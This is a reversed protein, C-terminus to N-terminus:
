GDDPDEMNGLRQAITLVRTEGSGSVYLVEYEEDHFIVQDEGEYDVTRVQLMHENRLGVDVPQTTNQARVDSSRLSAMQVLSMTMANCFVTRGTREGEHWSGSSDQYSAAPSLLTVVENWRM